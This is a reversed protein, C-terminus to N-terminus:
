SCGAFQNDRLYLNRAGPAAGIGGTRGAGAIRNALLILDDAGAPM